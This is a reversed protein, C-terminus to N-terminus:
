YIVNNMRITFSISVISEENALDRCDTLEDRAAKKADM